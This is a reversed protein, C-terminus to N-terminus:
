RRERFRFARIVLGGALSFLGILGIAPLPSATKPLKPAPAPAPAEAAAPAPTPQPARAAPQQAPAPTPPPAPPAPTVVPLIKISAIKVERLNDPDKSTERELEGTIEVWRGIMSPNVKGVSEKTNDIELADATPDATCKAETVNAVPGKRPRALVYGDDEGGKVADGRLLCGAATIQGSQEQPLLGGDRRQAYAASATLVGCAFVVAVIAYRLRM